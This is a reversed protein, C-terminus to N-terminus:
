IGLGTGHTYRISGKAPLLVLLGSAMVVSVFTAKWHIKTVAGSFEHFLQLFKSGVTKLKEIGHLENMRGSIADLNTSADKQLLLNDYVRIIRDNSNTLLNQGNRSFAISKIVSGGSVPVVALVKVTQSDVVLIGGKSNRIHLLHGDKNFTAVTPTFPPSGDSFKNRQHLVAVTGADTVSVPLVTSSGTNLDVLIPASSLPCALCISPTCSGPHLHVHM